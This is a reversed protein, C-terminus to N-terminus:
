FRSLFGGLYLVVAMFVPVSFHFEEPRLPGGSSRRYSHIQGTEATERVYSAFYLMRERIGSVSVMLPLSVLAGCFVSALMVRVSGGPGVCSEVASLLKGDGAGIMGFRHLLIGPLLPILAGSFWRLTGSFVMEATGQAAPMCWITHLCLGTTWGLLILPNGIKGTELDCLAAAAAYTITIYPGLSEQISLVM